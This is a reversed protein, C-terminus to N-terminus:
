LKDGPKGIDTVRCPGKQMGKINERLFGRKDQVKM